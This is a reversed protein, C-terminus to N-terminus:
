STFKFWYLRHSYQMCPPHLHRAFTDQTHVKKKKLTINNRKMIM